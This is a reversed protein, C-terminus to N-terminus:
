TGKQPTFLDLIMVVLRNRTKKGYKSKVAMGYIQLLLRQPLIDYLFWNINYKAIPMVTDKWPTMDIYKRWLQRQPHKNSIEWPKGTIGFLSHIIKPSYYNAMLSDYSYFYGPKLKSVSILGKLNYGYYASSFNYTSDLLKIRNNFV